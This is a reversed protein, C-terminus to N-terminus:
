NKEAYIIIGGSKNEVLGSYIKAYYAFAKAFHDEGFIDVMTKKNNSMRDLLEKYWITYHKSIDVKKAIQWGSNLLMNDIANLNLLVYSDYTSTDLNFMPNVEGAECFDTYDFIVLQSRPRAVKSLASLALQQEPINYLVNFLCIVDFKIATIVEHVNLVDAVRFDVEPYKKKAYDISEQEIDFGVVKGWNHKQIYSATGGLGCGVDLILRESDKPFPAMVMDISKTEGAHAYDGQRVYACLSKGLYKAMKVM